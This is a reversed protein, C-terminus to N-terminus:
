RDLGGTAEIKHESALGFEDRLADLSYPMKLEPHLQPLVVVQGCALSSRVTDLSFQGPEIIHVLPSNVMDVTAFPLKSMEEVDAPDKLLLNGGQSDPLYPLVTRTGNKWELCPASGDVHVGLTGDIYKDRYSSAGPHKSTSTSSGLDARSEEDQDGGIDSAVPHESTGPPSGPDPTPEEDQDNGTDPQSQSALNHGGSSPGSESAKKAKARARDFVSNTLRTLLSRQYTYHDGEPQRSPMERHTSSLGLKPGLNYSEIRCNKFINM